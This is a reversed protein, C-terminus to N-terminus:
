RSGAPLLLSKWSAVGGFAEGVDSWTDDKLGKEGDWRYIHYGTSGRDENM